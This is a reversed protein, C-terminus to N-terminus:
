TNILKFIIDSMCSTAMELTSVILNKLKLFVETNTTTSLFKFEYLRLAEIELTRM